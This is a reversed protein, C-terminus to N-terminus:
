REVGGRWSALEAFAGATRAADCAAHFIVKTSLGESLRRRLQGLWWSVAVRAGRLRRQELVTRDLRWDSRGQLYARKLVWRARLRSAPLEHVVVAAPVWVARAGSTILDRVVQADDGVIQTGGSPGLRTDFGGIDRLLQTRTLLSATLLSEVPALPREFPGLDLATLYGEVAESLWTPRAVGPDLLVRGGVLDARGELVPTALAKLWGPAPVVDDDLMALLPTTTEAIGRNRAAAAGATKEHVLAAGAPVVPPEHPGPDNDIVLLRYPPADVQEALGALVRALAEPRRFTPLVVTIQEEM